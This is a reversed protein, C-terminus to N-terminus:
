FQPPRDQGRRHVAHRSFFIGHRHRGDLLWSGSGTGAAV